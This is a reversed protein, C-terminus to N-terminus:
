YAPQTVDDTFFKRNFFSDPSNNRTRRAKMEANYMVEKMHYMGIRMASIRDFNGQNNYRLYEKLLGPDYIRHLNYLSNGSKSPRERMLWDRQYLDGQKKRQDDKGSAIHMGYGRKVSTKPINSNYEIQFEEALMHLKRHTKAYAIVNGRDNEFGIKANYYEALLFLNRNYEDQSAPRGNYHAVIMDDPQSINNIMKLVYASGVSDGASSDHDYPDHCVIYMGQPPRGTEQDIYPPYIQVICGTNDEGKKIPYDYVPKAESDVKFELGKNTKVIWGFLPMNMHLNERTLHREWNAIENTPFINNSVRCFAESPCNPVEMTYKDIVTPDTATSKIRNRQQEEYEIAGEKNSNGHADMFGAKNWCDPHFFSCFTGESAEDWINEIPLINFMDPNYFIEEFDEWNDDDGGGTGFIIILGTVFRGDRTTQDTAIFADKLGPWKGAEEMLILVADKGRAADPNKGFSRAIIQSKYGKEIQTVPDIYGSKVHKSNDILKSKYWATHQDYFDLADKAMVMTADAGVLYEWDYAGILSISGPYLSYRNATLKSNKYSYGKRRAKGILMHRGGDLSDERINIDLKLSEYKTKDIGTEAIKVSWYFNYDGDWFAPFDRRKRRSRSKTVLKDDQEGSLKIQGFNLYDYHDGTIHVGGVSYGEKRRREQETWYDFFDPTGPPADCYYGYKKFHLAERRFENTNIFIGDPNRVSSM